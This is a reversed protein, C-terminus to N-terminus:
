GVGWPNDILFKWSGDAQRHLVEASIGTGEVPSGDPELTKMTWKNQTLAIDGVVASVVAEIILTPKTPVFAAFGERIAAIGTISEGPGTFFTADPEYLALAAELDGSGFADALLQTVQEPTEAPM